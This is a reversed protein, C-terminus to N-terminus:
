MVSAREFVYLIAETVLRSTFFFGGCGNIVLESCAAALEFSRIFGVGVLPERLPQVLTDLETLLPQGTEDRVHTRIRCTDRLLCTLFRQM